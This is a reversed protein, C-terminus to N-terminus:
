KEEKSKKLKLKLEKIYEDRKKLEKGAMRCNKKYKDLESKLESEKKEM